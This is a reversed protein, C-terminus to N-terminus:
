PTFPLVQALLLLFPGLTLRHCELKALIQLFALALLEKFQFQFM